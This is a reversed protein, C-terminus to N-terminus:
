RLTIQVSSNTKDIQVAAITEPQISLAEERSVPKGNVTFTANESIDGSHKGADAPTTQGDDGTTTFNIPLTFSVSVPNGNEDRGPTFDPFSEVVRVAEADVEPGVPKVVKVDTVKGEKNITFNVVVRGTVCDKNEPFRVNTMLYNMMAQLGGPFEPMVAAMQVPADYNTPSESTKSENKVPTASEAGAAENNSSIITVKPGSTAAPRSVAPAVTVTSTPASLSIESVAGVAHSVAPVQFIAVAAILAPALAASRLLRRRSSSKTKYMMTIRKKLKSHNLSNALSPFRAGVAKKILLLQYARADAGSRLVAADAQYEHLAKMEERMLWAAPNYWQFIAVLQGALLDCWHRHRIHALEHRVILSTGEAYDNASMVMYRYWSFPATSTDDTLVVTYGDHRIRRGSHIIRILRLATILTLFTALAAGAMWVVAIWKLDPLATDDAIVATLQGVELHQGTAPSPAVAEAIFNTIPVATFALLYISWLVARNYRTQQEGAFLWKYTMYLAALLVSTVLSYSIIAGM